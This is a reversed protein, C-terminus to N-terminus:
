DSLMWAILSIGGILVGVLVAEGLMAGILVGPARPGVSPVAFLLACLVLPVVLLAVLLADSVRVHMIMLLLYGLVPMVVGVGAGWGLGVSNVLRSM